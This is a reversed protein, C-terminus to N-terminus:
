PNCTGSTVLGGTTVITCTTLCAGTKCMTYTASTGITGNLYYATAINLTGVGKGAGTAVGIVVGAGERQLYLDPVPSGPDGTQITIEAGTGVNIILHKTAAGYFAATYARTTATDAYDIATKFVEFGAGLSAQGVGLNTAMRAVTLTTGDFTLNASGGWTNASTAYVVQNVTAANPLILTSWLPATNVGGARLYSGAAVDALRSWTPTTASAYILDGVAATSLGTGGYLGAVVGGQWTGSAITGVTTITAQGVYSTSIDFTPDTATGGITLRNATGTVTKVKADTYTTAISTGQWTGVTVTSLRTLDAFSWVGAANSVLPTGATGADAIPLTITLVSGTAGAKLKLANANTANLLWLEGTTTSAVGLSLAPSAWTLAASSALTNGSDAYLLRGATLVNNVVWTGANVSPVGSSASTNLGTGGNAATIPLTPTLQTWSGTWKMLTNLARDFCYTRGTLPATLRTDAACGGAESVWVGPQADVGSAALLLVALLLLGVRFARTM